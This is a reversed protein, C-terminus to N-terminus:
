RLVGAAALGPEAGEREEAAGGRGGVVGGGGGGRGEGAAGGGGGEGAGGGVVVGRGGGGSAALLAAPLRARAEHLDHQLPTRLLDHLPQLAHTQGHVTVGEQLMLDRPRLQQGQLPPIELIHAYGLHAYNCPWM